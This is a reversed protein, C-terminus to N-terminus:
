FPKIIVLLIIGIMLLTPIENILRFFNASKQNRGTAFNKRWYATLGHFASLMLVFCIKLHIWGNSFDVVGPTLLLVIGFTFTAIMAPNMIFKLLRREMMEFTDSQPSGWAASTHYVFLRPLYLLGAMWAVMSIVHFAKFWLYYSQLFDQM